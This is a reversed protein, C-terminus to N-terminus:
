PNSFPTPRLVKTTRSAGSVQRRGDIGGCLRDIMRSEADMLALTSRLTLATEMRALMACPVARVTAVSPSPREHVIVSPSCEIATPSVSFYPPVPVSTFGPMRPRAASALQRTSPMAIHAARM